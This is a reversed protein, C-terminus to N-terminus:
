GETWVLIRNGAAWSRDLVLGPGRRELAAVDLDLDLDEVDGEVAAFMLGLVGGPADKLRVFWMPVELRILRRSPAIWMLAHISQLRVADALELETRRFDKGEADRDLYPPAPGLRALEDAFALEAETPATTESQTWSALMVAFGAIGAMAALLLVLLLRGWRRRKPSPTSM